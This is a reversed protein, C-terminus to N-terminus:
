PQWMQWFVVGSDSANSSTITFSVGNSRASIRPVGTVNNDQGTLGFRSTAAVATSSVTCTGAVLTCTGYRMESFSTGNTGFSQGTATMLKSRVTWTITGAGAAAFRTVMEGLVSSIYMNLSPLATNFRVWNTGDHRANVSFHWDIGGTGNPLAQICNQIGAAETREYCQSGTADTFGVTNRVSWGAGSPLTKNNVHSNDLAVSVNAGTVNISNTSARLVSDRVNIMQYQLSSGASEVYLDNVTDPGSNLPMTVNQITSRVFQSAPIGIWLNARGKNREYWDGFSFYGLGESLSGHNFVKVAATTLDGSTGNFEYDNGISKFLGIGSLYLGFNTNAQVRNYDLTLFTGPMSLGGVTATQALLGTGNYNIISNSIRGMLSGSLKIGTGCRIVSIRDFHFHQIGVANIGVSSGGTNNCDVTFNSFGGPAYHIQDGPTSLVNIASLARLMSGTETPVGTGPTPKDYGTGEVRVIPNVTVTSGIGSVGGPVYLYARGKMEAAADAAAQFAVADDTTGDVLAGFARPDARNTVWYWKTGASNCRALDRISDTVQVLRHPECPVALDDWASRELGKLFSFTGNTNFRANLVGGNLFNVQGHVEISGDLIRMRTTGPSGLMFDMIGDDGVGDDNGRMTLGGPSSSGGSVGPNTPAGTAGSINGLITGFVGQTATVVNANFNGSDDRSVITNPTNASTATTRANPLTGSTIDTGADLNPIDDATLNGAEWQSAGRRLIQGPSPSPANVDALNDLTSALPGTIAQTVKLSGHITVTSGSESILSDSLNTGDWKQLRGTTRSQGVLQALAANAVAATLSELGALSAFTYRLQLNTDTVKYGALSVAGTAAPVDYLGIFENKLTRADNFWLQYYAAPNLSRSPYVSVDYQGAPSLAASVTSGVPTIGAPTTVAQTLILTISGQRPNGGADTISGVLRTKANTVSVTVTGASSTEGGSTVTYTFSDSGTYGAAPTYVVYGTSANLNSLAGHSPSSTTAYTLATGEADSGMLQILSQRDAPVATSFSAAVPVTFTPPPAAALAPLTSLALCLALAAAQRLTRNM